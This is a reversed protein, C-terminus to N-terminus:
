GHTSYQGSRSPPGDQGATLMLDSYLTRVQRTRACQDVEREALSRAARSLAGARDGDTLLESVTRALAVPNLPVLEAASTPLLEARAWELDSVVLPTGCALAEWASRPSSDSSPVSVVVDAAQYMLPLEAPPVHGIISVASQLDAAAITRKLSAPVIEDPHKLVLRADPVEARVRAFSEVILEPNYVPKLQRTSLVTPADDWGLASRAASRPAPCFTSLDLGWRVVDVRVPRSALDLIASRLALSDALVVRSAGIALASRKATLRSPALVDSGWASCVLPKLHERAAIWGFEPLWHAHVLDPQLDRAIAALERSLRRGRLGPVRPLAVATVSTTGRIGSTTPWDDAERGAVHVEFGADAVM